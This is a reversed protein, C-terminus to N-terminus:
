KKLALTFVRSREFILGSLIVATIGLPHNLYPTFFHVICLTILSFWTALVLTKEVDHTAPLSQAVHWGRRLIVILLGLYVLLGILGMKVAMDFYGWEFAYTTYDGGGNQELVRPDSSHYTVTKGFGYGLLPAKKIEETLVPLLSWRSAAAAENEIDSLRDSFSDLRFGSQALPFPINTIGVILLMACATAVFCTALMTAVVQWRRLTVVSWVCITMGVVGAALWFSRSFSLLVSAIVAVYLSLFWRNEWVLARAAKITLRVSARRTWFMLVIVTMAILALVVYIQSQLFIRFVVDNLRTLEGVGTERVWRYIATITDIGLLKHSLVYLLFFTKCLQALLAALAVIAVRRIATKETLVDYIAPAALFFVWANADAFALGLGNQFVGYVAAGGVVVGLAAYWRWYKSKFFTLYSGYEDGAAHRIVNYFVCWLWGIMVAAFIGLRVGIEQEGIALSFLHGKSGIVLEALMIMLGYEIRRLSFILTALSIVSFGLYWVIPNAYGGLSVEECLLIVLLTGFFLQLERSSKINSLWQNAVAKAISVPSMISLVVWPWFGFHKKYYYRASANFRRQRLVINQQAFSSSRVHVAVASPTYLVKWGADRVRKCWDVEEMWIFFKEDLLGVQNMIARRMLFFAGMVQEVEQEKTYDIADKEPDRRLLKNWVFQDWFNPLKRVSPQLSGDENIIKGGVIAVDDNKEAAKIIADLAGPRVSADPNLLLIFEGSSERIAQNNAVAFGRNDPNVILKVQPFHAAVMDVSGDQSNNDVVFVEFEGVPPHVFVSALCLRLLEKVNWNVIIISLKM